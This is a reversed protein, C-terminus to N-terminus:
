YWNVTVSLLPAVSLSVTFTVTFEGMLIDGTALAPTFIFIVSGTFLAISSPEPVSASPFM